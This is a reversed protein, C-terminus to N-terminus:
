KTVEEPSSPEPVTFAAHGSCSTLGRLTDGARLQQLLITWRHSVPEQSTFGREYARRTLLLACAAVAVSLGALGAAGHERISGAWHLAQSALADGLTALPSSVPAAQTSSARAASAVTVGSQGTVGSPIRAGRAGPAPRASVALATAGQIAPATAPAVEVGPGLVATAAGAAAAGSAARPAHSSSASPQPQASTGPEAQTPTAEFLVAPDLYLDGRRLGVHLHTASSSDDGQAALRGVVQGAEVVDGARVGASELPLLTVRGHVTEVTVALCTGGSDSPVRGAFRVTGAAPVAVADAAACAVDAGHHTREAGASDSYRAGFGLLV